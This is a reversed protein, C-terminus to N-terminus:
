RQLWKVGPFNFSATERMTAVSTRMKFMVTTQTPDTLSDLGVVILTWGDQIDLKNQYYAEVYKYNDNVPDYLFASFRLGLKAAASPNSMLGISFAHPTENRNDYRAQTLLTENRPTPVGHYAKIWFGIMWRDGLDMNDAYQM